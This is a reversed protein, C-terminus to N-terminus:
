RFLGKVLDSRHRGLGRRKRGRLNWGIDNGGRNTRKLRGSKDLDGRSRGQADILGRIRLEKRIRKLTGKGSGCAINDNKGERREILIGAEPVSSLYTQVGGGGTWRRYHYARKRKMKGFEKETEVPPGGL